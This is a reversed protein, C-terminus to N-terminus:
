RNPTAWNRLHVDYRPELWGRARTAPALGDTCWPGIVPERSLPPDASGTRSASNSSAKAVYRRARSRSSCTRLRDMDFRSGSASTLSCRTRAKTPPVIATVRRLLAVIQGRLRAISSLNTVQCIHRADAPNVLVTDSGAIAEIWVSKNEVLRKLRRRDQYERAVKCRDRRRKSLPMWPLIRRQLQGAAVVEEDTLM